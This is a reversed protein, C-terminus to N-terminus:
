VYNKLHKSHIHLNFIPINQGMYTVFPQKSVSDFYPTIINDRILPDIIRYCNLPNYILKDAGNASHTGGIYQGYSSPDFVCQLKDLMSNWPDVPLVPLLTILNGCNAQIYGLLRMEHPMTSFEHELVAVGKNALKILNSCLMQLSNINKIYMFGCVLENVKHPPLGIHPINIDLINIIDSVNKYLLVDNDFHIINQLKLIMALNKIYFFREFSTRWLPNPDNAYFHLNCLEQPIIDKLNIKILCEHNYNVIADTITYLNYNTQTKIIQAICDEFYEPIPGRHYLIFNTKM